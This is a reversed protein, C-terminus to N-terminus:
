WYNVRRNRRYFYTAVALIALITYAATFGNTSSTKLATSSRTGATNYIEFAITKDSENLKHLYDGTEAPTIHDTKNEYSYRLRIITSAPRSYDYHLEFSTTSFSHETEEVPWDDPLHIEIEEEYRAPYRLAFPMTRKEEKPQKIVGNIFYPEILIKSKGAEENWFDHITYYEKSTLFGTKDDDEYTLSDAEIKKFYSTYLGKYNKQIEKISSNKFTYRTDDAFSGSFTTVVELQVPGSLNKVYFIEKSTVKGTEQM